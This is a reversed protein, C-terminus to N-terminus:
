DRNQWRDEMRQRREEMRQHWRDMNERRRQHMKEHHRNWYGPDNTIIVGGFVGAGTVILRKTPQDPPRTEDSFGGFVGAGRPVVLWDEPVVIEVGGFVADAEVVAEDRTMGAHRLDLQFGGFVAVVKMRELNQDTIRRKVHSFVSAHEGNVSELNRFFREASNVFRDAGEWFRDTFDPRQPGPRPPPPPPPSASSHSPRYRTRLPPEPPLQPPTQPAPPRNREELARGLLIIGIGILLLPWFLEGRLRIYGLNGALLIVGGAVLVGGVTRAVLTRIEVLLIAGGAMLMVPWFRLAESIPVIGLRDLLLIVGLVLLIAGNWAFYRDRSNSCPKM